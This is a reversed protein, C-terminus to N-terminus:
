FGAQIAFTFSRGPLPAINKLISVHNRGDADFANLVRVLFNLSTTDFKAPADVGLNIFTYAGTETENPSLETQKENRQAEIDAQYADCKYVIAVSERFAPIRPLSRGTSQNNGRVFDSKIELEFVGSAFSVPMKYRYELEAGVLRAAVAQYNYIPLGSTADNLGSPSLAIYNSFDQIFLSVLGTTHEQKSRLSVELARSVEKGLTRDGAEFSSTAVHRGNAFLEQYNPARETVSTNLVGSLSETFDYAFGLSLSSASFSKTESAGFTTAKDFAVESSVSSSDLRIGFSPKFKELNIEQFLFLATSSNKTRPLFAEDGLAEFVFYNEQVGVFGELVGRKPIKLDLRAEHGNNKFTTGAKTNEIEQHQYDSVTAKLKLSEFPGVNKTGGSFDFRQQRMDLNVAKESVAGYKSNYTGFSIGAFSQDSVYSTGFAGNWTRNFSNTVLGLSPTRYDDAARASSDFHFLWNKLSPAAPGEILAGVSRGNDNSSFRSEFKGEIFDIKTEPIRKSVMNVVGGIASSGYLLASPGRVIEIREVNIPDSAVAHDQSAASADLVGTGNQLVRVREGDLGRIVPRSANPGYQSSNVGTEHALTEGLTSRQKRNLRSGSLESVTPVFDLPSSQDTEGLVSIEPVKLERETQAFVIPWALSVTAFVFGSILKM